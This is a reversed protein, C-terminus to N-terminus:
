INLSKFSIILSFILTLDPTTEIHYLRRRKDELNNIIIINYHALLYSYIRTIRAPSAVRAKTFVSRYLARFHLRLHSVPSIIYLFPVVGNGCRGGGPRLQQDGSLRGLTQLLLIVPLLFRAYSM